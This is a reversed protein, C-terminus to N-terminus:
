SCRIDERRQRLAPLKFVFASLRRYLDERLTKAAIALKVDVSTAAIIRANFRISTTGGIRTFAQQQLVGLLKAQLPLSIAEIADILLTGGNCLDFLGPKLRRAASLSGQENGFLESELM